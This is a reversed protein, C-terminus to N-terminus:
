PMPGRMGPEAIMWEQKKGNVDIWEIKESPAGEPMYSGIFITKDKITPFENIIRVFDFDNNDNFDIEIYKFNIIEGIVIIEIYEHSSANELLIVDENIKDVPKRYYGNITVKNVVGEKTIQDTELITFGKVIKPEVIPRKDNNNKTNAEEAINNTENKSCSILLIPLIILYSFLKM